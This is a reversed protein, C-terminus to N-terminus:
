QNAPRKLLEQISETAESDTLPKGNNSSKMKKIREQLTRISSDRSPQDLLQITRKYDYDSSSSRNCSGGLRAAIFLVFLAVRVITWLSTKESTSGKGIKEMESQKKRVQEKVEESAALIQANQIIILPWDRDVQNFIKICLQMIAFALEDRVRGFRAEPLQKLMQVYRFGCVNAVEDMSERSVKNEEVFEIQGIQTRINKEIHDWAQERDYSNMLMPNTLMATWSDDMSHQLCEDAFTIFSELYYPSIWNIFAEDSYVPDIAFSNKRELIHHELFRLLVKDRYVKLHWSIDTSQQLDEFFLIIDNKSVEKGNITVGRGDNLELEALMKKKALLLDKRDITDAASLEM